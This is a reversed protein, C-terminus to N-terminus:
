MFHVEWKQFIRSIQGCFPKMAPSHRHLILDLKLSQHINVRQLQMISNRVPWIIYVIVDKPDTIEFEQIEGLLDGIRRRWGFDTRGPGKEMEPIESLIRCRFDDLKEMALTFTGPQDFLLVQQLFPKRIHSTNNIAYEGYTNVHGVYIRLEQIYCQLFHARPLPSVDLHPWSLFPKM